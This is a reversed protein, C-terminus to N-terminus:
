VGKLKSGARDVRKTFRSCRRGELQEVDGSGHDPSGRREFDLAAENAGTGNTSEGLRDCRIRREATGFRRWDVADRSKM